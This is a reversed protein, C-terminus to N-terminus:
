IYSEVFLRTVGQWLLFHKLKDTAKKIKPCLRTLPWVVLFYFAYLCVMGILVYFLSGLNHVLLASDHGAQQFNISVPVSEPNYLMGDTWKEAPFVEFSTIEDFYNLFTQVNGPTKADYLQLYNVVQVGEVLGWIQSM